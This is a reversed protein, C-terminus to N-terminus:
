IATGSIAVGAWSGGVFVCLTSGSIALAGTALATSPGAGMNRGEWKPLQFGTAFRQVGTITRGGNLLDENVITSGSLTADSLVDLKGSFIGSSDFSAAGEFYNDGAEFFHGNAFQVTLTNQDNVTLTTAASDKIVASGTAVKGFTVSNGAVITNNQSGTQFITSKTNIAVNNIGSINSGQTLLAINNFNNVDQGMETSGGLFLLNGSDPDFVNSGTHGLGFVRKGNTLVQGTFAFNGTLNKSLNMQVGTDTQTINLDGSDSFFTALQIQEPQIKNFPM